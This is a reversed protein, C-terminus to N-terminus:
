EMEMSEGPMEMEAHIPNDTSAAGKNYPLAYIIIGAGDQGRYSSPRARLAHAKKINLFFLVLKTCYSTM